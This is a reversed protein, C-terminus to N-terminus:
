NNALHQNDKHFFYLKWMETRVELMTWHFTEMFIERKTVNSLVRSPYLWEARKRAQETEKALYALWWDDFENM